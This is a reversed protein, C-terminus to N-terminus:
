PLLPDADLGQLSVYLPPPPPAHVALTQIHPVGQQLPLAPLQHLPAPKAPPHCIPVGQRLLLASILPVYSRVTSTLLPPKSQGQLLVSLPPPPDCTPLPLFNPVDQQLPFSLIQILPPHNVASPHLPPEVQQPILASLLPAHARM